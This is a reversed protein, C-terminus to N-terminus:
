IKLGLLGKTSPQTKNNGGFSKLTEIYFTKNFTQTHFAYGEFSKAKRERMRQMIKNNKRWNSKERVAGVDVKGTKM